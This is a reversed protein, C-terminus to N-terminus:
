TANAFALHAPKRIKRHGTALVVRAERGYTEVLNISRARNAELPCVARGGARYYHRAMISVCDWLRTACELRVNKAELAKMVGRIERWKRSIAWAREMLVVEHPETCALAERLKPRAMPNEEYGEEEFWAVITMGNEKAYEEIRKRELAREIVLGTNGVNINTTYAIAKKEM